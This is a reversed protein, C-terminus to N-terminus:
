HGSILVGTTRYTDFQFPGRLARVARRGCGFTRLQHGRLSSQWSSTQFEAISLAM